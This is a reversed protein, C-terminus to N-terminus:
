IHLLLGDDGYQKSEDSHCPLCLHFAVDDPSNCVPCCGNFQHYVAVSFVRLVARQPRHHFVATELAIHLIHLNLTPMNDIEALHHFLTHRAARSLEEHLIACGHGYLEVAIIKVDLGSALLILRPVSHLLFHSMDLGCRKCLKYSKKFRGSYRITYKM